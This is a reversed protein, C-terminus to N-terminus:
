FERCINAIDPPEYSIHVYYTCFPIPIYILFTFLNNNLYILYIRPVFSVRHTVSDRFDVKSPYVYVYM